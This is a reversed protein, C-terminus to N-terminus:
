AELASTHAEWVSVKNINYIVLNGDDQVILSAGPNGSVNNDYIPSGGGPSIAFSWISLNGGNLTLQFGPDRVEGAGTRPNWFPHNGFSLVLNGDDQFVLHFSGNASTFSTGKQYTGETMTDPM